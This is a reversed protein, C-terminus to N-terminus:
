FKLRELDPIPIKKEVGGQSLLTISNRYCWGYNDPM